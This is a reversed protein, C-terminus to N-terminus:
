SVRKIGVQMGNIEAATWPSGTFVSNQQADWYYSYSTSSSAFENAALESTGSANKYVGVVISEGPIDNELNWLARLGLVQPLPSGTIQTLHYLDIDGTPSGSDYVYDSPNPPINNVMPYHSTGTVPTWQLTDGDSIPVLVTVATNGLFAGNTVYVDDVTGQGNSYVQTGAVAEGLGFNSISIDPGSIVRNFSGTLSGSYIEVGNAKVLYACVVATNGSGDTGASVQVNIEIYYWIGAQQVWSAPPAPGSGGTVYGASSAQLKAQIRGDGTNAFQLVWGSSAPLTNACLFPWDSLASDAKWAFGCTIQAQEGQPFTLFMNGGGSGEGTRAGNGTRGSVITSGWSTWDQGAHASDWADFSCTFLLGNSM